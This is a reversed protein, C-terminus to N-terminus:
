GKGGHLRIVPLSIVGTAWWLVVLQLAREVHCQHSVAFGVDVRLRLHPQAVSELEVIDDLNNERASARRQAEESVRM